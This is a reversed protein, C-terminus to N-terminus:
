GGVTPPLGFLVALIRFFLYTFFALLFSSFYSVTAVLTASDIGLPRLSLLFTRDDYCRLITQALIGDEIVPDPITRYSGDELEESTVDEAATDGLRLGSEPVAGDKEGRVDGGPHFGRHCFTM